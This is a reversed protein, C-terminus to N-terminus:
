KKLILGMYTWRAIDTADRIEKHSIDMKSEFKSHYLSTWVGDGMINAIEVTHADVNLSIQKTAVFNEIYIGIPNCLLGPRLMFFIDIENQLM